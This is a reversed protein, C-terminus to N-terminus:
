RLMDHSTISWLLCYKGRFSYRLGRFLMLVRIHRQNEPLNALYARCKEHNRSCSNLTSIFDTWSDCVSKWLHVVSCSSYLSRSPRWRGHASRRCINSNLRPPDQDSKNTRGDERSHHRSSQASCRKWHGGPDDDTRWDDDNVWDKDRRTATDRVSTITPGILRQDWGNLTESTVPHEAAWLGIKTAIAMRM